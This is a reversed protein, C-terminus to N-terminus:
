LCPHLPAALALHGHLPHLHQQQLAEVIHTQAQCCRPLLLQLL